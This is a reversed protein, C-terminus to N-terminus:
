QRAHGPSKNGKEWDAVDGPVVKFLPHPAIHRLRSVVKYRAPDRKKLKWCLHEWEFLIQGSSIELGRPFRGRQVIRSDDFRYHRKQAEGFVEELYYGIAAIPQAAAKFRELQPHAKYGKTKGLLVKQALLTERWLAVLGQADLYGPHLSWIRM